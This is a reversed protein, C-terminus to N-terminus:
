SRGSESGIEHLVTNLSRRVLLLWVSNFMVYGAIAANTKMLTQHAERGDAVCRRSLEMAARTAGAHCAREYADLYAQHTRTSEYGYRSLMFLVLGIGLGQAISVWLIQRSLLQRKSMVICRQARCSCSAGIQEANLAAWNSKM